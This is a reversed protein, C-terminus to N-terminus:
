VWRVMVATSWDTSFTKSEELRAGDKTVIAIDYQFPFLRSLILCSLVFMVVGSVFMVVGSAFMVVGSAFMVVGSVFVVVGSVFMVVGSVFKKKKLPIM